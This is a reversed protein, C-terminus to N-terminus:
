EEEKEIIKRASCVKNYLMKLQQVCKLEEEEPLLAGVSNTILCKFIFDKNEETDGFVEVGLQFSVLISEWVEVNNEPNEDRMFGIEFQELSMSLYPKLGDYIIRIRDLLDKDLKTHCIKGGCLSSLPVEIIEGKENKVKAKRNINAM